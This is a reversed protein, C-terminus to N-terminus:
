ELRTSIQNWNKDYTTVLGSNEKVIINNGNVNKVRAHDGFLKSSIQEFRQNYVIVEGYSKRVVIIYASFGSLEDETSILKSSIQHNNIDRVTLEGSSSLSVDAINQASALFMAFVFSLFLFSKKM